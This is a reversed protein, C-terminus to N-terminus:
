DLERDDLIVTVLKMAGGCKVCRVADVEFIKRLCAAWARKAVSAAQRVERSVKGVISVGM